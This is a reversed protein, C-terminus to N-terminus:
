KFPYPKKITTRGLLYDISVDYLDAIDILVTYPMERKGLEYNNYAMRTIHLMDAIEGQTLGRSERLQRIRDYYQLKMIIVWLMIDYGIYLNCYSSVFHKM